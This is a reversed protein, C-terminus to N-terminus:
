GQMEDQWARVWDAGHEAVEAPDISAHADPLPCFDFVAPLTADEVVPYVWNSTPIDEQFAVSLMYDIFAEATAQHRGGALIGITEIQEVMTEPIAPVGSIPAELTDDYFVTAAPSTSYSVVLPRDGGSVSFDTYYATSWDPAVRVGNRKLDGWFDLYDYDDDVGFYAVTALLFAYGPSSQAPDEVVLRSAYEPRALDEFTTPAGLGLNSLTAIDHNLSVYGYSIPTLSHTSDFEFRDPVRSLESSEYPVFLGEDAYAEWIFQDVGFILDASPNGRELAARNIAAQADAEEVFTVKVGHETEFSTILDESVWFAGHTLIIIDGTEGGDGGGLCGAMAVSVLVTVLLLAQASLSIMSVM